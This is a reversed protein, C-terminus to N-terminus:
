SYTLGSLPSTAVNVFATSGGAWTITTKILGGSETTSIKRVRWAATAQLTGPAAEAIWRTGNADTEEYGALLGGGDTPAPSSVPDSPNSPAPASTSGVVYVLQAFRRDAASTDDTFVTPEENGQIAPVDALPIEMYNQRNALGYYYSSDYM